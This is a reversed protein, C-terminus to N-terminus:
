NKCNAYILVVRNVKNLDKFVEYTLGKAAFMQGVAEAQGEGVEFAILGNKALYPSFEKAFTRYFELGDLGGALAVKPEKQVEPPLAALDAEKIYPPNSVIIDFKVNAPLPQFFPGVLFNLRESLGNDIANKHAVALAQKSIDTAWVKALKLEYALSLAIAGSGTGIDLVKLPQAPKNKQVWNVVQEVLIETEPRPIFVAETVTLNLYRFPQSGLLYQLPMGQARKILLRKYDQREQKNLPQNFNLYLQLRSLGLCHALLLEANLRAAAIKQKALYTTAAELLLSITWTTTQRKEAQGIM